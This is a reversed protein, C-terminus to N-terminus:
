DRQRWDEREDRRFFEVIEEPSDFGSVGQAEHGVGGLDLANLFGDLGDASMEPNAARRQAQRLMTAAVRNVGALKTAWMMEGLDVEQAGAIRQCIRELRLRYATSLM